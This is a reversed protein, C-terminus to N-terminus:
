CYCALWHVPLEFGVGVREYLDSGWDRVERELVSVEGGYDRLLSILVKQTTSKGAGNPGLFGFIEGDEVAFELDKVAPEKAGPYAFVLGTVEIVAGLTGFRAYLEGWQDDLLELCAPANRCLM